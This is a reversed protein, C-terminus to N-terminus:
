YGPNQPALNGNLLLEAQPIPLLIDTSQWASKIPSLVEAAKGTRKLDFWRHGQESFLEIKREQTIASFLTETTNADTNPLGARNRIKNIDNQADAIAGLHASAEARILYQEALRFLITYEESIGTYFNKRYKFPCYWTGTGDTVTKVWAVKRQDGTEFTAVFSENLASLYPASDEFIFTRADKANLGSYGPHLSWITATSEKLFENDLNEEWSYLPNEIVTTAKSKASTWDETYLFVRALLANAVGKNVRVHESSPYDEPLLEEAQTLDAIINQWVQEQPIKAVSTNITYDTTTVYPVDGFVNVLYFHIYARIFLAEGMLRQKDDEGIATSNSLGEIMANAAYIETYSGNWFSQVLTNTAVMTHDNFQEIDPNVSYFKMEDAYIAMLHSLGGPTGNVMGQERIHAYIDAMAANATRVNEFVAPSTLQSQPTDVETFSECRIM